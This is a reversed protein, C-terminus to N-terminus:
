SAAGNADLPGYAHRGAEGAGTLSSQPGAQDDTHAAVAGRTLRGAVVGAALAGLLFTGPRRRAFGRLEALVEAPERGDLWEALGHAREAAQGVLETAVGGQEGSGAMSRLEGALSRLNTVATRHQDGVQSRLQERAEGVLNRAQTQAQAAVDKASGAAAQAVDGAAQKGAEASQAAKDKVSADSGAEHGGALADTDVPESYGAYSTVQQESM